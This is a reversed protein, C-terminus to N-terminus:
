LLSIQTLGWACNLKKKRKPAENHSTNVAVSVAQRINESSRSPLGFSKVWFLSM